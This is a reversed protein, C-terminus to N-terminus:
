SDEHMDLIVFELPFLLDGVRVLVDELIGYPYTISRDALALTMQNSKPEGYKLKMMMSLPMMNISAELDCLANRITLSGIFYPITFRGPDTLKPPLKRQIIASCEKVLTINENNKLM